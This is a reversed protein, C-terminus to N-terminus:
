EEESIPIFFEFNSGIGEESVCVIKGNHAEVILKCVYLGLGSSMSSAQGCATRRFREFLHDQEALQIGKGNDRVSVKLMKNEMVLSVKVQGNQESYKIANDLLNQTVRYLAARDGNIVPVGQRDPLELSIEIEKRQAHIKIQEVCENIVEALNVPLKVSSTLSYAASEMRSADLLNVIMSLMRQNSDRLKSLIETQAPSFTGLEGGMILELIFGAGTLPNKLDHTLTAIFEERQQMLNEKYELQLARQRETIDRVVGCVRLEDEGEVKFSRAKVSLVRERGDDRRVRFQVYYGKHANALANLVLPRDQRHVRELLEEQSGTLVSRDCGFVASFAASTYYQKKHDLSCIFLFDSVNESMQRLLELAQRENREAAEKARKEAFIETVRKILTPLRELRDKRVFDYAGRQICQVASEEGISHSLVIFPIEKEQQKLLTMASFADFQGLQYNSIIVHPQFERLAELYEDSSQVRRALFKLGAEKLSAKLSFSDQCNDEVLLLRLVQACQSGARHMPERYRRHTPVAVSQFPASLYGSSSVLKRAM